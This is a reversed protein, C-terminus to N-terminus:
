RVYLSSHGFLEAVRAKRLMWLDNISESGPHAVQYVTRGYLRVVLCLPQNSELIRQSVFAGLRLPDVQSPNLTLTEEEALLEELSPFQNGM